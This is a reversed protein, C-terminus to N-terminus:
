CCGTNVNSSKRLDLMDEELCEFSGDSIPVRMAVETFMELVGEGNKSSTEVYIADMEQAYKEGVARDVRRFQVLDSKNGCIVLLLDSLANHKLELAWEQM